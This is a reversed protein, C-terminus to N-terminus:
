WLPRTSTDITINSPLNLTLTVSNPVGAMALHWSVIAFKGERHWMGTYTTNSNWSGTPTFAVPQTDTKSYTVSWSTNDSAIILVQGTTHLKGIGTITYVQSLTTGAHIFTFEKGGLGVASPLTITFSAASLYMLDDAVTPTDTTVVSRVGKTFKRFSLTTGNRQLIELDNAAVLDAVNATANGTVGIVSRAAGQRLQADSVTNAALGNVWSGGNDVKLSTTTTDWAVRGANAAAAAPLSGTAYNEARFSIQNINTSLTGEATADDGTVFQLVKSAGRHFRINNAPTAHNGFVCVSDNRLLSRVVSGDAANMKGTLTNWWFRGVVTASYDGAKNEAQANELQGWIKAM